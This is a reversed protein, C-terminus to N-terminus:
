LGLRRTPTIERASEVPRVRSDLVRLPKGVGTAPPLEIEIMALRLSQGGLDFIFRFARKAMDAGGLSVLNPRLEVPYQVLDGKGLTASASASLEARIPRWGCVVWKM